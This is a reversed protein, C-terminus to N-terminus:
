CNKKKMTNYRDWFEPLCKMRGNQGEDTLYPMVDKEFAAADDTRKCAALKKEADAFKVKYADYQSKSGVGSWLNAQVNNAIDTKIGLDNKLLVLRLTLHMSNTKYTQKRPQSSMWKAQWTDEDM